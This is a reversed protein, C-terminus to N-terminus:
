LLGMVPRWCGSLGERGVCLCALSLAVVCGASTGIEPVGAARTCFSACSGPGIGLEEVGAEAGIYHEPPQPNGALMSEAGM